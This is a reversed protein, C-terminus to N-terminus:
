RQGEAIPNFNVGLAHNWATDAPITLRARFLLGSRRAPVRGTVTSPSLAAGWTRGQGPFDSTAIELSYTSADTLVEVGKPSVFARSGPVLQEDFTEITAERPNGSFFALRNDATFAGFMPTGGLWYRSDLPITIASLTGLSDMQNLTWGLSVSAGLETVDNDAPIWRDLQWNYGLLKYAGLKDPYQWWVIKEFPDAVGRVVALDDHNIDALFTRDVREAGIPSGEVGRFFGDECLYVFDTPGIQVISLPAISGRSPNLVTFRFVLGSSPDFTMERITKRQFIIAGTPNGFIGTIDEGDPLDQYDSGRDGSTWFTPDNVASWQVRQPRTSNLHAGILFDGGVAIYKCQPAGGGVDAWALPADVDYVQMPSGITSAYLKSGFKAFSWRDSDPVSYPASPGSIDTWALTTPDLKYLRTQTGAIVSYSGTSSRVYTFGYCQGPLAASYEVLQSMPGYGDAKPLVNNVVTSALPNFIAKDPEFPPFQIM